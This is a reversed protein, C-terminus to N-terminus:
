AVKKSFMKYLECQKFNVMCYHIAKPIKQSNMNICYCESSHMEIFPCMAKEYMGEVQDEQKTNIRKEKEALYMKMM